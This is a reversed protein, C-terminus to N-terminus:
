RWCIHDFDCWSCKKTDRKPLKEFHLDQISRWVNKIIGTMEDVLCDNLEIKFESPEGKKIGYKRLEEKAPEVFIVKGHSVSLTKDKRENDREYLLKYCVLQRLYDDCTEDELSLCGLLGKVHGKPQGTKYDIVRVSKKSGDEMELKDYKGTFIVGDINIPMRSELGLPKIPRAAIRDFFRRIGEFQEKCRLEMAKEPGQFTLAELFRDKFFQFDPFEETRMYHRYIHELGSHVANGFMLSQRKAGPLMLVNDYLFKRRCRLYNNLSTPNLIMEGVIDRLVAETGIFPDPKEIRQLSEILIDEEKIKKLKADIGLHHLFSSSIENEQPSSTFIVNSKARSIAVYFLRTEDYYRLQKIREKDEVIEITKLLEPPLPILNPRPKIPWSKDQLCFPIIVSHFEQGKSGHATFVRVGNQTMTVMNGVVPMNHEKRTRIEDVFDGLNLGPDSVDSDKIMNIFSALGRLERIKVVEEKDYKDLIYKFIGAENIYEMLVTHVPKLPAERLLKKIIGAAKKLPMSIGKDEFLESILTVDKKDKKKKNVKHIFSLIERHPIHFYDSILIKYLIRDRDEYNHPGLSALELVDLMQRVRPESRIDEKGDTAYPIGAQLFKDIIKLILSRKRVLVAINNYPSAKEEGSLERSSEIQAKFENIKDVLFCLEEEERTFEQFEISKNKFDKVPILSKEGTREEKPVEKILHQSLEIIEKASRYNHRLTITKLNKFRKKLVKFNGVSAGQFRYISQDDDGVCCLNPDVGKLLSFLFNLQAGNTDQFEDVMVFKFQEEYKKKLLKENNLADTALMIMDDFDYRGRADFIEKNKGEKLKEYQDYVVALSKIKPIHKEEVYVGDSKLTNVYQLFEQPSIGERKLDAIRAQMSPVYTYPAKFPRVETIGKTRDIIYEIAKVKEIDTIQIRDQIYNAAEESDLIISNAFAHFTGVHVDYGKFGIIKALREKMTKAAANTYTLILINEPLAKKQRIINAARVSLLQTKGTGPGALILLPGDITDVAEKQEVNLEKYFGDFGSM